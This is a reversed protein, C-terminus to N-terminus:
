VGTWDEYAYNVISAYYTIQTSGNDSSVRIDYSAKWETNTVVYSLLLNIKFLSFLLKAMQLYPSLPSLILYRAQLILECCFSSM